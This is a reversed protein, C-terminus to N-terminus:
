AATPLNFNYSSTLSPPVVAVSNGSATDEVRLPPVGSPASLVMGLEQNWFSSQIGFDEVLPNNNSNNAVTYGFYLSTQCLPDIFLGVLNLATNGGMIENDHCLPSSLPSPPVTTGIHIGTGSSPLGIINPIPNGMNELNATQQNSNGIWYDAYQNM